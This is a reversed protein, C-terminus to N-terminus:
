IKGIKDMLSALMPAQEKPTKSGVRVAPLNALEKARSEALEKTLQIARDRMAELPTTISIWFTGGDYKHWTGIVPADEPIYNVHLGCDKVAGWECRDSDELVLHAKIQYEPKPNDEDETEWNNAM